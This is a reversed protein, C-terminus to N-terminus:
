APRYKGGGQAVVWDWAGKPLHGWYKPGLETLLMLDSPNLYSSLSAFVDKIPKDTQVLWTNSMYHMWPGQQQIATFLPAYSGSVGKLDYTILVIM